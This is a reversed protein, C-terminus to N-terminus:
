ETVRPLPPQDGRGYIRAIRPPGEFATFLVTVRGNERIHSITEVGTSDDILFWTTVYACHKKIIVQVPFTRTGCAERAKSTFHGGVAKLLSISSDMATSPHRRSGSCTSNSFGRYSFTPSEMSCSCLLELFLFPTLNQLDLRPLLLKPEM